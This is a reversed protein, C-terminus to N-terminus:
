LCVDEKIGSEKAAEKIAKYCEKLYKKREAETKNRAICDNELHLTVFDTETMLVMEAVDFGVNDIILSKKNM